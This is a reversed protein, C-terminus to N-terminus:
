PNTFVWNEPVGHSFGGQGHLTKGLKALILMLVLPPATTGRDPVPPLTGAGLAQSLPPSPLASGPLRRRVHKGPISTLPSANTPNRTGPGNGM